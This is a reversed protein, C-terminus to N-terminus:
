LAECFLPGKFEDGASDSSPVCIANTSSAPEARKFIRFHFAPLTFAVKPNGYLELGSALQLVL